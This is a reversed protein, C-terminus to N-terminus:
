AFYKFTNVDISAIRNTNIRLNTSIWILNHIVLLEHKAFYYILAKLTDLYFSDCSIFDIDIDSPILQHQIMYIDIGTM